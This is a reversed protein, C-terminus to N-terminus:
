VLPSPHTCVKYKLALKGLAPIDDIIGDPFNPASGVILVTNPNSNTWVDTLRRDEISDWLLPILSVCMARKVLDVRVQRTEEDVPIAHLKIGFYDSAKWFAAHASAPVIM